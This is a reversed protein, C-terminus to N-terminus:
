HYNRNCRHCVYHEDTKYIVNGIIGTLDKMVIDPICSDRYIWFVREPEYYVIRGRPYYDYEKGHKKQHLKTWIEDHSYPYVLFDGYKEAKKLSCTQMLLSGNVYFFLGVFGNQM